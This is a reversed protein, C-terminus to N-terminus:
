FSFALASMHVHVPEFPHKDIPRLIFAGREGYLDIERPEPLRSGDASYVVKVTPRAQARRNIRSVVAVEGTSLQVFTGVPFRGIQQLFHNVMRPAFLTSSGQIILSVARHVDIADRYVRNTTVADFVDCIAAAMDFLSLDRERLGNVYGSGNVREHHNLVINKAAPSLDKSNKLLNHGFVVHKRMTLEEDPTLLDPKQLIRLDIKSKGIDHLLLGLGLQQLEEEGSALDRFVTVGLACVNVSHLYTYDDLEKLEDLKFAADSLTGARRVLNAVLDNAADFDIKTLYRCAEFVERVKKTAVARVEESLAESVGAQELIARSDSRIDAHVQMKKDIPSLGDMQKSSKVRAPDMRALREYLQDTLTQGSLLVAQDDFYINFDLPQGVLGKLAEIGEAAM